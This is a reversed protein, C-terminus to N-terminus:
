AKISQQVATTDDATKVDVVEGPMQQPAPTTPTAQAVNGPNYAFGANSPNYGAGTYMFGNSQPAAYPNGSQVYPNQYPNQYPNNMPQGMQPQAYPNGAPQGMFAGQGFINSLNQFMSYASMNPNRMNWGYADHKTMNKAAIEFLEPLKELLPIIQFYERASDTPMDIFMLKVTQLLDIVQEIAVKIEDATMNSDVQRFTYGCISCRLLGTAKDEVIADGMGDATRHNCIGRLRQENTINLSFKSTAKTLMEIEDATLANSFKQMQQPAQGGYMNYNFAPNQDIM